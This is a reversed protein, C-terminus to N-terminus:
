DTASDETMSSGSQSKPVRDLTTEHMDVVASVLDRRDAYCVREALQGDWAGEPVPDGNWSAVFRGLANFLADADCWDGALRRDVPNDKRPPHDEKFRQWDGGGLGVLGIEGQYEALRPLLAKNQARIEDVEPARAPEAAKRVRARSEDAEEGDGQALLDVLREQLRRSEDLLHQGEILTVTVTAKPRPAPGTQALLEALSPM